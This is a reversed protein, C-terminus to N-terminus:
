PVVEGAPEDHQAFWALVSAVKAVLQPDSARGLDFVGMLQLPRRAAGAPGALALGTLILALTTARM